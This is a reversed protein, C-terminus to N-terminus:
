VLEWLARCNIFHEITLHSCTSSIEKRWAYWNASIM